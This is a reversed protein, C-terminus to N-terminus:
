GQQTIKSISVHTASIKNPALHKSLIAAYEEVKRCDGSLGLFRHLYQDKEDLISVICPGMEEVSIVDLPHGEMPWDTTMENNRKVVFSENVKPKLM